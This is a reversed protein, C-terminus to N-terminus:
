DRGAVVGGGWFCFFFFSPIFRFLFPSFSLSTFCKMEQVVFAKAHGLNVRRIEMEQLNFHKEKTKRLRYRGGEPERSPVPGLFEGMDRGWYRGRQKVGVARTARNGGCGGPAPHLRPRGWESGMFDKGPSPPLFASPPDRHGSIPFSPFPSGANCVSLGMLSPHTEKM